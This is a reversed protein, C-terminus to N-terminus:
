RCGVRRSLIWKLLVGRACTDCYRGNAGLSRLEESQFVAMGGPRGAPEVFLALAAVKLGGRGIELDEVM